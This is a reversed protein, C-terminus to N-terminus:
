GCKLNAPSLPTSKIKDAPMAKCLVRNQALRAHQRQLGGQHRAVSVAHVHLRRKGIAMIRRILLSILKWWVLTWKASSFMKWRVIASLRRVIQNGIIQFGGPGLPNTTKFTARHVRRGPWNGAMWPSPLTPTPCTSARKNGLARHRSCSQVTLRVVKVKAPQQHANMVSFVLSSPYWSGAAAKLCRNSVFVLGLRKTYAPRRGAAALRSFEVCVLRGWTLWARLFHSWSPPFFPVSPLRVGRSFLPGRAATEVTPPRNKVAPPVGVSASPAIRRLEKRQGAAKRCLLLCRAHRYGRDKLGVGM